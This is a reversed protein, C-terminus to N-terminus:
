PYEGQKSMCAVYRDFDFRLGDTCKKIAVMRKANTAHAPAAVVPEATSSPDSVCEFTITSKRPAGPFSISSRQEDRLALQKGARECFQTAKSTAELKANDWGGYASGYEASVSYTTPGNQIVGVDASGCASLFVFSLTLLVATIALPRM